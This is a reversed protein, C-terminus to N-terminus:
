KEEGEFSCVGSACTKAHIHSEFEARFYRLAALAVSPASQGFACFSASKLMEGLSDLIELDESVAKGRSIACLVEEVRATGLRCPACNGCSEERAFSGFERAVAVMCREESIVILGGSGLPSGATAFGEFSVPVDLRDGPILAGLPGGTQVAKIGKGGRVGKGFNTIVDILPTGMPVEIVGPQVVDGGLCLIATGKSSRTGISSFWESGNRLVLPVHALTKVNNVVTPMGWLGAQAPFPPRMRPHGASGEMSNLLATEEGCVYAGAALFIEIRLGGLVGSGHVLKLVTELRPILHSYESRLYLFAKSSGIAYAAIALGEFVLHPDGELLARDMWAGLDGEAANCIVFRQDAPTTRATQWKRATSFGAGGRGRLGSAELQAIVEEPKKKRAIRLGEYAGAARFANFDMPDLVGCRALVRRTQGPFDPAGNWVVPDAPSLVRFRQELGREFADRSPGKDSLEPYFTASSHVQAEPIGLQRAVQPILEQPVKGLRQRIGRLVDLLESAKEKM